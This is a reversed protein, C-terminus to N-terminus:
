ESPLNEINEDEESLYRYKIKGKFLEQQAIVTPNIEKEHEFSEMFERDYIDLDQDYGSDELIEKEKRKSIRDTNISRARRAIILCAEYINRSENILTSIEITKIAM